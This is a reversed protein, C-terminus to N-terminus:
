TPDTNGLFFEENLASFGFSSKIELIEGTPSMWLKIWSNEDMRAHVMYADMWDQKRYVRTSSAIIRWQGGLESIDKPNPISFGEPLGPIEKLVNKAGSDSIEKMRFERKTDFGEGQAHTTLLDKAPDAIVELRVDHIRGRLRMYSVEYTPKLHCDVDMRVKPKQGLVPVTVDVFGHLTLPSGPTVRVAMSGMEEGKWKLIMPSYSENKLFRDALYQPPLQYLSLADPFYETRILFWTMVSCFLIAALGIWGDRRSIKM